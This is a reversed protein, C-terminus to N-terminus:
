RKYLKKSSTKTKIYYMGTSLKSIDMDLQYDNSNVIKTMQSVNQGLTNYIELHSIEDKNGKIIIKNNAPNPYIFIQQEINNETNIIRIESYTYKGDFDVQKLKYYYDGELPIEDTFSYNLIQTSNGAGKITAITNWNDKDQSREIAFYDNNTESATKWQLIVNSSNKILEADFALLEIPLPTQMANISGVTFHEGDNININQWEYVGDTDLIPADSYRTGTQYVGDADILLRLDNTVINGAVGNLDIKITISGLDGTESVAWDRELRAEIGAPLDIVGESNLSGNNHGWFLFENDGMNSPSKIKVMGSGRSIEHLNDADVRGIGAVDHDYNGNAVDDNTYLDNSTLAIGYKASLYNYIIIKQAANLNASFVFLEAIDGNLRYDGTGISGIDLLDSDEVGNKSTFNFLNSGNIDAFSGNNTSESFQVGSIVPTAVPFLAANNVCGTGSGVAYDCNGSGNADVLFRDYGGNDEGWIAGSNGTLKYVAYVDLQPFKQSNINLNTNIFSAGNFRMVDYGNLANNILAPTGSVTNTVGNGSLDIWQSITSTGTVGKNADIWFELTSNGNTTGVGAPGRQSYGSFTILFISIILVINKM